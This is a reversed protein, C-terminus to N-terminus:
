GMFRSCSVGVLMRRIQRAFETATNQDVTDRFHLMLFADAREIVPLGPKDFEIMLKWGGDAGNEKLAFSCGSYDTRAQEGATPDGSRFGEPIDKNADM